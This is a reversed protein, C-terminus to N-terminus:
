LSRSPSGEKPSTGTKPVPYFEPDPTRPPSTKAMTSLIAQYFGERRDEEGARFSLMEAPKSVGQTHRNLFIAGSETKQLFLPSTEKGTLDLLQDPGKGNLASVLNMVREEMCLSPPNELSLFDAIPQGEYQIVFSTGQPAYMYVSPRSTANFIEHKM